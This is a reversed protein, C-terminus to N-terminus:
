TRIVLLLLRIDLVECTISFTYSVVGSGELFFYHQLQGWIQDLGEENVLMSM